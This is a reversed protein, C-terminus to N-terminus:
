NVITGITRIIGKVDVKNESGPGLEFNHMVIIQSRDKKKSKLAINLYLQCTIFQMYTFHVVKHTKVHTYEDLFSAGHDLYHVYKDSGM